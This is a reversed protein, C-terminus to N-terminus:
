DGDYILRGLVGTLLDLSGVNVTDVGPGGLVTVEGTYWDLNITDDGGGVAIRMWTFAPLTPTVLHNRLARNALSNAGLFENLRVTLNDSDAGAAPLDLAQGPEHSSMRLDLREIGNLELGYFPLNGDGIGSPLGIGEL